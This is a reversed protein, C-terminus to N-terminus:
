MTGFDGMDCACLCVCEASYYIADGVDSMQVILKKVYNKGTTCFVHLIGIDIAFVNLARAVNNQFHFHEIQVM